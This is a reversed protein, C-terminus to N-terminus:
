NSLKASKLAINVRKVHLDHHLDCRVWNMGSGTISPREFVRGACLGEGRDVCDSSTFKNYEAEIENFEKEAEEKTSYCVAGVYGYKDTVVVWNKGDSLIDIMQQCDLWALFTNFDSAYEGVLKYASEISFDTFLRVHWGFENVEGTSNDDWECYDLLMACSNDYKRTPAFVGRGNLNVPVTM